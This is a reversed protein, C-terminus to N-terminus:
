QFNVGYVRRLRSGEYREEFLTNSTFKGEYSDSSNYSLLFRYGTNSGVLTDNMYDLADDFLVTSFFANDGDNSGVVVLADFNKYSQSLTFNGSSINGTWLTVYTIGRGDLLTKLKLPTVIRLDDTGTNVEAQTAIEAIGKVTESANPTPPIAAIEAEVYTTLKLPTIFKSDNTGADTEAQTAKDDDDLFLIRLADGLDSNIATDATGSPVISAETLLWQYFGYTDNLLAKKIPTGDGTTGTSDDKASGYPYSADPATIRGANEPLTSPNTAV